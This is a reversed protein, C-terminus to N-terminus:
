KITRALGIQHNALYHKVKGDSHIVAAGSIDTPLQSVQCPTRVPSIRWFRLDLPYGAM